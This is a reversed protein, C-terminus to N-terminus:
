TRGQFSGHGFLSINLNETKKHRKKNDNKTTLTNERQQRKTSMNNSTFNNHISSNSEGVAVIASFTELSTLLKSTLSKLISQVAPCAEVAVFLGAWFDCIQCSTRQVSLCNWFYLSEFRSIKKACFDIKWWVCNVYLGWVAGFKGNAELCWAQCPARAPVKPQHLRSFPCWPDLFHPSTVEWTWHLLLTGCILLFFDLVKAFNLDFFYLLM